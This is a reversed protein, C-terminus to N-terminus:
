QLDAVGVGQLLPPLQSELQEFESDIHTDGKQLQIDVVAENPANFVVEDMTPDYLLQGSADFVKVALDASGREANIFSEPKYNIEYHGQADTRAEGLLQESRLDRDFARVTGGAFPRGNPNVVTGRVVFRGNEAQGKESPDTRKPFM